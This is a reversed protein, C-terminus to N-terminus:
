GKSLSIELQTLSNIHKRALKVLQKAVLKEKEKLYKMM